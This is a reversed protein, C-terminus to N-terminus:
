FPKLEVVPTNGHFVLSRVITNGAGNGLAAIMYLSGVVARQVLNLHTGMFGIRGSGLARITFGKYCLLVAAAAVASLFYGSPSLRGTIM